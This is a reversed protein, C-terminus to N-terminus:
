FIVAAVSNILDALRFQLRLVRTKNTIILIKDNRLSRFNYTKKKDEDFTKHGMHQWAIQITWEQNGM